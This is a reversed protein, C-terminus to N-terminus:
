HIPDGGSHGANGLRTAQTEHVVWTGPFMVYHTPLIVLCPLKSNGKASKKEGELLDVSAGPCSVEYKKYTM